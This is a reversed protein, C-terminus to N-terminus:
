NILQELINNMKKAVTPNVKRAIEKLIKLRKNTDFIDINNKRLVDVIVQAEQKTLSVNYKSAYKLLQELTANQIQHNILKQMIPNVM